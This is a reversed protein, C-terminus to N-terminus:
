YPVEDLYGPEVISRRRPVSLGLKILDDPAFDRRCSEQEILISYGFEALRLLLSWEKADQVVVRRGTRKEKLGLAWLKGKANRAAQAMHEARLSLKAMYKCEIDLFSGPLDPVDSGM